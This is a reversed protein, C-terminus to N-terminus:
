DLRLKMWIHEPNAVYGSLIAHLYRTYRERGPADSYVAPYSKQGQRYAM